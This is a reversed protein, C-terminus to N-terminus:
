LFDLQDILVGHTVEWEGKPSRQEDVELRGSLGIRDGISLRNACERAEDGFTAVDVYVVGPERGGDGTRRPVAVRLRCEDLGGRNQRLQPETVLEGVLSVSNM